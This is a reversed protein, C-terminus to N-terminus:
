MCTHVQVYVDLVHVYGESNNESQFGEEEQLDQFDEVSQDQLM